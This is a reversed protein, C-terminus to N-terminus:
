IGANDLGDEILELERLLDNFYIENEWCKLKNIAEVLKKKEIWEHIKATPKMTSIVKNTIPHLLEELDDIIYGLVMDLCTLQGDIHMKTCNVHEYIKNKIQDFAEQKAQKMAFECFNAIKRNDSDTFAFVSNPRKPNEIWEFIVKTDINMTEDGQM